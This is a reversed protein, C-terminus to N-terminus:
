PPLPRLKPAARKSPPLNVPGLIDQGAGSMYPNGDYDTPQPPGPRSLPRELTARAALKAAGAEDYAARKEGAMPQAFYPADRAGRGLREQCGAREERSLRIDTCGLTTRLTARVADSPPPLAQPAERATVPGPAQVPTEVPKPTAIVVPAVPAQEPTTHLLRQHLQIPAPKVGRGGMPPPTRPLILVPIIAEPPGGPEIPITLTPHQLLVATLVGLHALVSAAVAWSSRRRRATLM